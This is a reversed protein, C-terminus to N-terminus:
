DLFDSLIQVQYHNTRADGCTHCKTKHKVQNDLCRACFTHSCPQLVTIKEALGNCIGCSFMNEVRKNVEPMLQVTNLAWDIAAELCKGQRDITDLDYKLSISSLDEKYKDNERYLRDMEQLKEENQRNM